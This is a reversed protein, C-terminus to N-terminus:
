VTTKKGRRHLAHGTSCAHYELATDGNQQTTDGVCVHTCEYVHAFVCVVCMQVYVGCMCVCVYVLVCVCEGKREEAERRVCLCTEGRDM